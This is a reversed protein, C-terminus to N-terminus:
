SQRSQMHRLLTFFSYSSNMISSFTNLSLPFMKWGTISLPRNAREVFLRLSGKFRRSLTFRFLCVCIVGAAVSFQAFLSVSFVEEILDCFQAYPFANRHMPLFLYSLYVKANYKGIHIFLQLRTAGTKNVFYYANYISIPRTYSKFHLFCHSRNELIFIFTKAYIDYYHGLSEPHIGLFKWFKENVKFCNITNEFAM